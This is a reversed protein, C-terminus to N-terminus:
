KWENNAICCTLFMSEAPDQTTVDIYYRWEEPFLEREEKFLGILKLHYIDHMFCNICILGHIYDGCREIAEEYIQRQSADTEESLRKRLLLRKVEVVQELKLEDFQSEYGSDSLCTM